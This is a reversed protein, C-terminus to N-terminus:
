SIGGWISKLRKNANNIKRLYRDKFKRFTGNEWKNEALKVCNMFFELNSLSVDTRLSLYNRQFKSLWNRLSKWHPIKKHQTNSLFFDVDLLQSIWEKIPEEIRESHFLGGVRSLSDALLEVKPNQFKYGFPSKYDFEKLLGDEELRNILSAGPYLALRSLFRYPSTAQDIKKLFLANEKLEEFIVYPHFMIFGLELAINNKRLLKTAEITQDLTVKKNFIKLGLPYGSEVGLIVRELGAKKLLPILDTDNLLADARCLIRFNINLEEKIIEKAIEKAREIGYNGPGIFNDDSFLVTRVNFHKKLYRLEDLVNKPSRACWLQGQQIREFAPTSCFSCNFACGRSTIVRATPSGDNIIQWELSDRAPFPLADLNSNKPRDGNKIIKANKDRYFVGQVGKLSTALRLRDIIEIITEEGYGRVVSDFYSEDKLIEETALTALHGGLCIHIKSNQSKTHKAIRRAIEFTTSVPSFGLFSPAFAVVENIIENEYLNKTQADVIRVLYGRHRLLSTLYGIGLHEYTFKSNVSMVPLPSKLNVFVIRFHKKNKVFGKFETGDLKKM